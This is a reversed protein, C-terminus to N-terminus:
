KTGFDELSSQQIGIMSSSHSVVQRVSCTHISDTYRRIIMNLGHLLCLMCFLGVMSSYASKNDSQPPSLSHNSDHKRGDMQTDSPTLVSPVSDSGVNQANPMSFLTSIGGGESELM